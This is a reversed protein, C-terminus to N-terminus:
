RNKIKRGKYIASDLKKLIEDFFFSIFITAAFCLIIYAYKQEALGMAKFVRMPIRQLIYFSFVHTGFWQLINNGIEVKMTLLVILAIFVVARMSYTIISTSHESLVVYASVSVAALLFYVADSKTVIKDFLDKALSFIMGGPLLIATNYWWSDKGAKILAFVLCLTLVTTLATGIYKNGKSLLFSVFVILYLALIVFIYWNSNGVNDWFAFSLLVRKLGYSKGIALSTVLYLLVAIWSHYLVKFFRKSPISKIYPMGKSKISELLGYGSYFLFTAVILQDIHTKFTIYPSDLVFDCDIYTSVHSFFVLITFIGNVATTSKKSMYGNNFEGAPAVKMDLFIIMLLILLFIIM